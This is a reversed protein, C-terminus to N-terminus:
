LLRRMAEALLAKVESRDKADVAALVDDQWEGNAASARAARLADAVAPAWRHPSTSVLELASEILERAPASPDDGRTTEGDRRARSWDAARAVVNGSRDRLERDYVNVLSAGRFDTAGDFAAEQLVAEDLRAGRFDCGALNARLFKTRRCDADRFSSGALDAEEFSSGVLTAGDFGCKHAHAGRFFTDRLKAKSFSAGDLLNGLIGNGGRTEDFRAGSLDCNVLNLTLNAYSFDSSQLDLDRTGGGLTAGRFDRGEPVEDRFPLADLLAFLETSRRGHGPTQTDGFFAHVRDLITRGPERSWRDVLEKRKAM